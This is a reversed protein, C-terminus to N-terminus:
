PHSGVRSPKIVYRYRHSADAGSTNITVKNPILLRSAKILLNVGPRKLNEDLTFSLHSIIHIEDASAQIYKPESVAMMEYRGEIVDKLSFASGIVEWIIKGDKEYVRAKTPEFFREVIKFFDESLYFHDEQLLSKAMTSLSLNNRGTVKQLLDKFKAEHSNSSTIFPRYDELFEGDAEEKLIRIFEELFRLENAISHNQELLISFCETRCAEFCVQLNAEDFVKRYEEVLRQLPHGKLIQIDWFDNTQLKKLEDQIIKIDKSNLISKKFYSVAEDKWYDLIINTWIREFVREDLESLPLCAEISLLQKLYKLSLKQELEKSSLSINATQKHIFDEIDELDYQCSRDSFSSKM